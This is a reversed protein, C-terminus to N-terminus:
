TAKGTRALKKLLKLARGKNPINKNEHHLWEQKTLARTALIGKHVDLGAIGPHKQRIHQVTEGSQTYNNSCDKDKERLLTSPM